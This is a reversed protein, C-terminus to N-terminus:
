GVVLTSLPIHVSHGRHRAPSRYPRVLIRMGRKPEIHQFVIYSHVFDFTGDMLMTMTVNPLKVNKQAEAIMGPSIDYGVVERSRMAFGPLLRGVGCGFDLTRSPSFNPDLKSHIATFVAAVHEEGTRFFEARTEETLEEKHFQPHSLVGFYPDIVGFREWQSDTNSM